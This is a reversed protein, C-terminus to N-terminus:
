DLFLEQSVTVCLQNYPVVLLLLTGPLHFSAWLVLLLFFANIELILLTFSKMM